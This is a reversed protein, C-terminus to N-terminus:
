LGWVQNRGIVVIPQQSNKTQIVERGTFLGAKGVVMKMFHAKSLENM